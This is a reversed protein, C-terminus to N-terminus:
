DNTKKGVYLVSGAAIGNMRFVNAGFNEVDLFNISFGVSELRGVFGSKSYMRVHDDQGYKKWREVVDVEDPNEIIESQTLLIPVMLIAFGNPKLVRYLESMAKIDDPVHELVHSCIVLDFQADHYIDMDQINVKDMALPSYLDASRYNINDKLQLWNSLAPAPAIDLVALKRGAVRGILDNVFLVYLRDRDSANCAPCAYQGVNLTEFDELSYDVCIKNFIEIYSAPLPYFNSFHSGCVPCRRM